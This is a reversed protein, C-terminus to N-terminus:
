RDPEAGGEDTPVDVPSSPDALRYDGALWRGLDAMQCRRSCFPRCAPDVAHQRCYACRAEEPM